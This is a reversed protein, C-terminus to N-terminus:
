PIEQFPSHTHGKLEGQKTLASFTKGLIQWWSVPRLLSMLGGGWDSVQISVTGGTSLLATNRKIIM